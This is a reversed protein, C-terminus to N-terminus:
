TRSPARLRDSRRYRWRPTGRSCRDSRLRASCFILHHGRRNSSTSARSCSGAVLRDTDGRSRTASPHDRHTSQAAPRGRDHQEDGSRHRRAGDSGTARARHPRSRHTAARGHHRATSLEWNSPFRLRLEEGVPVDDTHGEIRIRRDPMGALVAGLKDIVRTGDPTLGAQGSPFLVRDVITVTVRANARELAIDKDAIEQRLSSVLREWAAEMEPRAAEETQRRAELEQDLASVQERSAALARSLMTRDATVAALEDGVASAAAELGAIEQRHRAELQATREDQERVRASLEVNEASLEAVRQALAAPASPEVDPTSSTPTVPPLDVFVLRPALTGTSDGPRWVTLAAGLVAAHVLGSLLMFAAARASSRGPPRLRAHAGGPM